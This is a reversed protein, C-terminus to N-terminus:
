PKWIRIKNQRLSWKFIYGMKQSLFKLRVLTKDNKADIAPVLGLKVEKGDVIAIDKDLWMIIERAAKPPIIIDVSSWSELWATTLVSRYKFFDYPIWCYGKDGWSEGWSNRVEFYGTHGKHKLEDNYGMVCVAHGGLARGKPMEIFAGKDPSLFNEYVVVAGLVPGDRVIAQKVEDISQIRAYAGIKFEHAEINADDPIEPMKPWCMRSYPFTNELCIGSKQLVKMAVRPYTGEIYPIGDMQKCQTYVYLPSTVMTQSYNRTEHSDKIGACAFGVCSGYTGQDRVPQYITRLSYKVPLEEAKVISRYIYDRPDGPSQIVGPIFNLRM